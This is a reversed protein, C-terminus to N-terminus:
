AAHDEAKFVSSRRCSLVRVCSLLVGRPTTPEHDVDADDTARPRRPASPRYVPSLRSPCDRAAARESHRRRIRCLSYADTFPAAQMQDRPPRTSISCIMM